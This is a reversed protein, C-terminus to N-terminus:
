GDWFSNRYSLDVNGLIANSDIAQCALTMTTVFLPLTRGAVFFQLANSDLFCWACTIGLILSFLVFALAAFGFGPHPPDVDEPCKMGCVDQMCCSDPLPIEYADKLIEFEARLMPDALCSPNEAAAAGHFWGNSGSWTVAVLAVVGLLLLQQHQPLRRRWRTTRELRRPLSTTMQAM